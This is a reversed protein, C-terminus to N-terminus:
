EKIFTGSELRNGDLLRYCYVGSPLDTISIAAEVMGADLRLRKLIRGTMDSITIHVPSESPVSLRMNWTDFAPNPFVQVIPHNEKNRISQAQFESSPDGNFYYGNFQLYSYDTATNNDDWITVTVKICSEIFDELFFFGTSDNIIFSNMGFVLRSTTSVPDYAGIYLSQVVVGTACDIEEIEFQCSSIYGNLNTLKISGSYLGIMCPSLSDRCPSFVPGNGPYVQLRFDPPGLYTSTTQSVPLGTKATAEKPRVRQAELPYAPLLCIIALVVPLVRNPAPIPLSIPYIAKM